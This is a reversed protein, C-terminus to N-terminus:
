SQLLYSEFGLKRLTLVLSYAQKPEKAIIGIKEKKYPKFYKLLRKKTSIHPSIEELEFIKFHNQKATDLSIELSLKDKLDKKLSLILEKRRCSTCIKDKSSTPQGCKECPVIEEKTNYVKKLIPILKKMFVSLTQHKFHPNKEEWYNLFEKYKKAPIKEKKTHPCEFSKIPINNLIAYYFIEKESTTFFPKVKKVQGHILPPVVPSFRAISDFSGQFFLNLMTSLADDLHHGTCVVDLELKSAIKSFIGRKIVGCVSCIKNKFQTFVFDDISFGEEKLLNYFYLPVNQSECFNKIFEEIEESHYKIGLNVHIAQIYLEPYLKKLVILLTSSDKGGSLFVGIRKANIFM